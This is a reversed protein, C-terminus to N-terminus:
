NLPSPTQLPAWLLSPRRYGYSNWRDRGKEAYKDVYWALGLSLTDGLNHVTGTILALSNTWVGGVLELLTFGLNLLFVL